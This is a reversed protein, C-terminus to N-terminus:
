QHDPKKYFECVRNNKKQNDSNTNRSIMFIVVAGDSDKNNSMIKTEYYAQAVYTSQVKWNIMAPKAANM